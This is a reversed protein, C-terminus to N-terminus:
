ESFDRDCSVVICFAKNGAQIDLNLLSWLQLMDAKKLLLNMLFASQLTHM